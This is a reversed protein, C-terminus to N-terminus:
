ALRPKQDIAGAVPVFEYRSPARSRERAAAYLPPRTPLGQIDAGSPSFTSVPGRVTLHVREGPWLGDDAWQRAHVIQGSALRITLRLDHGYFERAVVESEGGPAATALVAEPRILVDVAGESQGLTPLDGLECTVRGAHAMGPLSDMDGVFVAIERTAPRCYVEEPRGVQLIRGAWMVAVQDALSLAEAQDHTVFIATAGARALIERVEARVRTRLAVDLNSFPEDLLILEPKTALARALAVRQQQGGSLEHPYRSELGSLGV